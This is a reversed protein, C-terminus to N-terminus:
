AALDLAGHSALYLALHRTADRGHEKGPTWWGLRHLRENTVLRKAGAAEQTVDFEVRYKAALFRCAGIIELSWPQWTKKLTEQTVKFAECVLVTPGDDDALAGELLELFPMMEVENVVCLTGRKWSAYGTMKGPDVAIVREFNM